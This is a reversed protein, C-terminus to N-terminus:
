LPLTMTFTTGAGEASELELAAQSLTIGRAEADRVAEAISRYM